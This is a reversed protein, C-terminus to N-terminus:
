SRAVRSHTVNLAHGCAVCKWDEELATIQEDLFDIVPETTLFDMTYSRQKTTTKLPDKNNVKLLILGMVKTIYTTM